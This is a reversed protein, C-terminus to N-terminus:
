FLLDCPPNLRLCGFYQLGTESHLDNTEDHGFPAPSTANPTTENFFCLPPRDLDACRRDYHPAIRLTNLAM